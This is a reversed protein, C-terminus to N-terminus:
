FSLRLGLEIWCSGGLRNTPIAETSIVRPKNAAPMTATHRLNVQAGAVEHGQCPATGPINKAAYHPDHDVSFM